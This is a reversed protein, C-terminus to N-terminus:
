RLVPILLILFLTANFTAHALMGAALRGTRYRLYGLILGSPFILLPAAPGENFIHAFSFILATIFIAPVAGTRRSFAGQILGRFLLEEVLPAGVVALLVVVAWGFDGQPQTGLITPAQRSASSSLGGALAILLALVTPIMRGAVGGVVGLGLDSLRPWSLGYDTTLSSTGNRRSAVVVAGLFGIWLGVQSTLLLGPDGLSLHGSSAVAFTIAVVTSLAYGVAAGVAAVGGGKIGPGKTRFPAPAPVPPRLPAFLPWAEGYPGRLIPTWRQGDWWRHPAVRWPDPYWGPLAGARSEGAAQDETSM